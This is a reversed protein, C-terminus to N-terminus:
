YKKDLNVFKSFLVSCFNEFCNLVNKNITDSLGVNTM